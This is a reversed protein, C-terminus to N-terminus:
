LLTFLNPKESISVLCHAKGVEPKEVVRWREKETEQEFVERCYKESRKRKRM